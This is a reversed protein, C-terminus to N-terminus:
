GEGVRGEGARLQPRTVIEKLLGGVGLRQIDSKGVLLGACLRSLIWDFGNERPSRACGPAGIVPKGSLEALLLLNGPDVPMGLHSIRGGSALISAPIVDRRDTIAAAGFLILIDFRGADLGRLVGTLAGQDQPVRAEFALAAGFRALREKTVLLTKDIVSAKLAPATLSIVGVRAGVFPALRLAQGKDLAEEAARVQAEPVAFPIIKVTGVMEGADVCAFPMLTALTIAEDLANLADVLAGDVVLLGAQEAFLNARGTFPEAVRIGAGAAAQGIRFAAIDESIDDQSLRVITVSELGAHRLAHCDELSLVHGKSFQAGAAMVRHPLLGGVAEMPPVSGFFM